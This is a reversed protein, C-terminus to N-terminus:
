GHLQDLKLSGGAAQPKGSVYEEVAAETVIPVGDPRVQHKVGMKKLMTVQASPQVKGTLKYLELDNLLAM